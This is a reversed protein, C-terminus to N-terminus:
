REYNKGDEKTSFKIGKPNGITTNPEKLPHYNNHSSIPNEGFIFNQTKYLNSNTREPSQNINNSKKPEFKPVKMGYKYPIPPNEEKANNRRTQIADVVGRAGQLNTTTYTTNFTHVTDNSFSREEKNFSILTNLLCNETPNNKRREKRRQLNKMYPIFDFHREQKKEPEKRVPNKSTEPIEKKTEISIPEKQIETPIKNNRNGTSVEKQDLLNKPKKNKVTQNNKATKKFEDKELEELLEKVAEVEENIRGIRNELNDYLSSFISLLQDSDFSLEIELNDNKTFITVISDLFVKIAEKNKEDNYKADKIASHISLYTKILDDDNYSTLEDFTKNKDEALREHKAPALVKEIKNKIEPENIIKAIEAVLQFPNKCLDIAKEAEMKEVFDPYTIIKSIKTIKHELILPSFKASSKEDLKRNYEKIAALMEGKKDDSNPKTEIILHSAAICDLCYKIIGENDKNEYDSKSFKATIITSIDKYVKVLSELFHGINNVPFTYNQIATSLEPEQLKDCISALLLFREGSARSGNKMYPDRFNADSIMKTIEKIKEFANSASTNEM